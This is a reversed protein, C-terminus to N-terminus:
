PPQKITRRSFFLQTFLETMPSPYWQIGLPNITGDSDVLMCSAAGIEANSEMVELMKEHANEVFVTDPNLFLIFPERSERAILNHARGFGLNGGSEIVQVGPFERRVMEPSGDSSANDIVVVRTHGPRIYKNLSFLCERLLDRTNWSVISIILQM